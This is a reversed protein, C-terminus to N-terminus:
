DDGNVESATANAIVATIDSITLKDNNDLDYQRNSDTVPTESSTCASIIGTIDNMQIINDNNTDGVILPTTAAEIASQNNATLVVNPFKKQLHSYEKIFVDYTGPIINNVAGSYANKSSDWTIPINDYTNIVTGNQKLTVKVTKNPKTSSDIPVGELNIDFNLTSTDPAPSDSPTPVPSATPSATPNPTSTPTLTSTPTATPTPTPGPTGTPTPTPTPTPTSAPGQVTISIPGQPSAVNTDGQNVAAAQTNTTDFSIAVTGSTAGSKVQFRFTALNKGTATQPYCQAQTGSGANGTCDTDTLCSDTGTGKLVVCASNLCGLHSLSDCPAGLIVSVTDATNQPINPTVNVNRCITQCQIATKVPEIEPRCDTNTNCSIGLKLMETNAITSPFFNGQTVSILDLKDTPTINLVAQIASVNDGNPNVLVSIDLTNGPALTTASPSLTLTVNGAAKKRIEQSKKIQDLAVLLGIIILIFFVVPIIVRKGLAIINPPMSIENLM